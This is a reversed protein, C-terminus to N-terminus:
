NQPVLPWVLAAFDTELSPLDRLLQRYQAWAEKNVPADPLQTWDSEALLRNREARLLELGIGPEVHSKIKGGQECWQILQQELDSEPFNVVSVTGDEFTVSVNSRLKDTFEASTIM